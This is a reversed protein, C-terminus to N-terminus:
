CRLEGGTILPTWTVRDKTKYTINQLDNNRGKDKKKQGYHQRDKKSKYIRIKDFKCMYWSIMPIYM